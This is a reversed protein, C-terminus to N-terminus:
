TGTDTDAASKIATGFAAGAGAPVQLVQLCFSMTTNTWSRQTASCAHLLLLNTTSHQQRGGVQTVAM